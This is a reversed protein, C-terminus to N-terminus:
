DAPSEKRKRPAPKRKRPTAADSKRNRSGKKRGPSTPRMKEGTKPNRRQTREAWALITRPYWRPGVGNRDMEEQNDPKPLASRGPPKGAEVAKIYAGRWKKVAQVGFGLKEAILNITWMEPESSTAM